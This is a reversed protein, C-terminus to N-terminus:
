KVTLSVRKNEKHRRFKKPLLDTQYFSVHHTVQTVGTENASM